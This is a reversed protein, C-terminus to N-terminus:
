DIHLLDMMYALIIQYIKLFKKGSRNRPKSLKVEFTKIIKSPQRSMILIRDSLFVAEEIDHTVMLVTTELQRLVSILKNQLRMKTIYDLSAFPEDLLLLEPINILARALAAKQAMGGSLNSPFQDAFYKLDLFNLIERVKEEDEDDRKSLAFLINNKITMWPFLRLEQFVISCDNIPRVIQHNGLFIKGTYDLDIGVISKLITSKGSGSEGLITVFEKKRVKFHCNKLVPSISNPYYKNKISVSLSKSM